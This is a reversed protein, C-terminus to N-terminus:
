LCNASRGSSAPTVSPMSAPSRTPTTPTFPLPLVVSSRITAPASDESLPRTLMAHVFQM